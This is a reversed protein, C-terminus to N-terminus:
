YAQTHWWAWAILVLQLPLRVIVAWEPLGFAAGGQQAMYINAPFVAILLAIVGWAALTSTAPVMLGLGVLIEAIGSIYVLALHAPLYPPMIRVYSEPKVFHMVGAAVYLLSMVYLSITKILGIQM